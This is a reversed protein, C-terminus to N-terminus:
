DGTAEAWFEDSLGLDKNQVRKEVREGYLMMLVHIFFDYNIDSMQRLQSEFGNLWLNLQEATETNFTRTQHRTGNADIFKTTSLWPSSPDQTVIHRLLSGADDYAIFSPKSEPYDDWIKDLITLVQSSSESRYCKRWGIPFGCAWQVTKFTYVVEDGPTDGLASLEVRLSPGTATNGDAHEQQTIGLQSAVAM